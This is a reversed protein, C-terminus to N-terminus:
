QKRRRLYGIGLMGLGLLGLTAGGDPVTTTANYLAYHSQGGFQGGDLPVAQNGSLNGVYWVHAGGGYKVYLWEWGTVNVTGSPTQDSIGDTAAPCGGLDPTCPELSRVFINGGPAPPNGAELPPDTDGLPMGILYNIYTIQADSNSPTGNNVSGLYGDGGITVAQATSASLALALGCSLAILTKKM